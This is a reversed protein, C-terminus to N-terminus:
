KAGGKDLQRKLSKAIAKAIILNSEIKNTIPTECFLKRCHDEARNLHLVLSDISIEIDGNKEPGKYVKVGKIEKDM